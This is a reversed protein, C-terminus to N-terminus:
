EIVEINASMTQHGIGCYENCLMLFEGAQDFTHTLRNIHGPTIMMNVNTQAISLGHVVDPSTVIFHVTAGKPIEISQPQFAFAQAILVLEYENEGIQQLGPQDFPPTDFVAEPDITTGDSPPHHGQAFAGFGVVALFLILALCSIILWVKEFRHLHM